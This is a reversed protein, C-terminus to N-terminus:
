AALLRVLPAAYEILAGPEALVETVLGAQDACLDIPEGLLEIRAVSDGAAVASGVALASVFSAIHPAAVLHEVKATEVPVVAPPAPPAEVAVPAHLPNAGGGPRAVFLEYDGSRLHIDAYGSQRFLRLLARTDTIIDTM